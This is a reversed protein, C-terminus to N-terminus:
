RWIRALGPGPPTLQASVDECAANAPCFPRRDSRLDVDCAVEGLGALCEELRARIAAPECNWRSLETRARGVTADVCSSVDDGRGCRSEHSCVESAVRESTSRLTRPLEPEGLAPGSTIMPAGTITTSRTEYGYGGCGIAGMIGICFLVSRRM